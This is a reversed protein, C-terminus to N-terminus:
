AKRWTVSVEAGANKFLKSVACYKETEAAVRALDAEGAPGDATVTLRVARFPREIEEQLLVGRRDLEFEADIHLHGIDVGLAKACKHGITNTCGILAAVATETPSPGANTGGREVPEDIVLRTDRATVDTRSHSPCDASLRTTVVTKPRIAM